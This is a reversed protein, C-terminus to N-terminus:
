GPWIVQLARFPREGYYDRTQVMRSVATERDVDEFVVGAGEVQMGAHPAGAQLSGQRVLAVVGRLVRDSMDPDLGFLIFEPHGWTEEVGVTYACGPATDYSFAISYGNARINYQVLKSFASITGSGACSGCGGHADCM